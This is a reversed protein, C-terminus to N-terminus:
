QTARGSSVMEKLLKMASPYDHYKGDIKIVPIKSGAMAYGALIDVTGDERWSPHYEFVEQLDVTKFPIGMMALKQKAAECIGCGKKAYVEVTM